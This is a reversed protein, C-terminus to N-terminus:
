SGAIRRQALLTFPMCLACLGALSWADLAVLMMADLLPLCAIWVGVAFPTLRRDEAMRHRAWTATVGLALGIGLIALRRPSAAEVVSPDTAADLAPVVLRNVLVALLLPVATIIWMHRFRGRNAWAGRARASNDGGCEPCTETADRMPHRCRICPWLGEGPVAVMEGRAAISLGVTWLALMAPLLLAASRWLFDWHKSEEADHAFAVMPVLCALARSAGLLLVSARLRAHFADYAVVMACLLAALLLADRSGSVAAAVLAVALCAGGALFAHARAIRGSPIPRSPREAADIRADFADNLIMGGIYALPPAALSWAASTMPFLERSGCAIAGIAGGAIANSVVTPLNSIRMIELWARARGTTAAM